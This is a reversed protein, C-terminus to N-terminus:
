DIRYFHTGNAEALETVGWFAPFKRMDEYVMDGQNILLYRLGLAKMERTAARRIGPTADRPVIEPTDTIPVWRMGEALVEVQLHAKWAPDCELVVEDVLQGSPFEVQLRAHPAIDQWTSWRTAYSNDFALQAEWGNPWASLRWGPSRALERGQSRLRMEAVTWFDAVKVTNVVRVGRTTVPLFKFHEATTANHAQPAWLIDNALNGLTSEYSVVIDRDIYAQPRGAFSFVREGRPVHLEIPVKLAYDGISNLIYPTVPDLRLAVRYPFSSIRWDWPDCYTSLVPPWCVLAHFLALAPLAGPVEALGVGMALALFPAAPILFRGGTNLYAPLAFVLAALLLRRGSKWRLAFLGCPALLFVPGFMGEVLGGRLTLQLPIEWYHKMGTYYRLGETYIREMGAHYYPNPFWSNFFPALPNGLWIWNRLTWPAVMLLAPVILYLLDRRNPFHRRTYWVWGLAFPLTLFATYKAGYSAGALLGIVILLNPTTFEDWVQLLYFVAYILTAVALDNYASVGDKAIVPSAFILIAAFLGAKPFGFRRGWCVMLLPLTCFYTFHVLAAASHRGFAFAVLFLMETGQSLYAYMSPYDWDFGHNRWMRVVNGLHYGSGDPSVEPALATFFYYIFFVGFVLFFVAMWTLPLAPLSKRRPTRRAQRVALLIIAVGGWQFVGKRALHLMCLIATVFSLCGAGAVFEFLAAEWRYLALRLRAVLLAGLAVSVAVTFAAGFLIDAVERM